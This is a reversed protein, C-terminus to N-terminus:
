ALGLPGDDPHRQGDLRGQGIARARAREITGASRVLAVQEETTLYPLLDLLYADYADHCGPGGKISACLPVVLSPDEFGGGGQSRNWLHAADCVDAPAGCVRCQGEAEVKERAANV